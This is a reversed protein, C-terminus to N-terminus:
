LAIEESYEAQFYGLVNIFLLRVWESFHNDGYSAKTASLWYTVKPFVVLFPKFVIFISLFNQVAKTNIPIAAPRHEKAMNIENVHSAVKLLILYQVM